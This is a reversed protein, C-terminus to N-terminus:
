ARPRVRSGLRHMAGIGFRLLEASLKSVCGLELYRQYLSRVHEAEAGNVVLQRGKLDYGLPVRGGMWLGNRKSAAFKDCTNLLESTTVNLRL